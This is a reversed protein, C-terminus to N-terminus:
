EEYAKVLKFGTRYPDNGSHPAVGDLVIGRKRAEDKFERWFSHKTKGMHSKYGNEKLWSNYADYCLKNSVRDNNDGVVIREDFFQCMPNLELKYNALVEESVRSETFCFNNAQLRELGEMALNLIGPIEKKLKERLDPDKEQETFFRTFPLFDLRRFYGDSKDASYPLNNFTLVLKCFPRFSFGDIGKYSATIMDEGIITKFHQSNFGKKGVENEGAINVTKNFLHVRNFDSSLDTLAMNSINEKGVLWTMVETFVGKGNQGGGLLILSKQAKTEVTMCYGLWELAKDIREEDGEFIEDLFQEFRPCEAEEDYAYPLQISSYYELDHEILEHTNLDYMGNQLNILHRMANFESECYVRRKLAEVVEREYSAKWQYTKGKNLTDYILKSLEIAPVKKWVSEQYNDFEKGNRYALEYRKSIYKACRNADHGIPRGSFDFNFGRKYQKKTEKDMFKKPLENQRGM